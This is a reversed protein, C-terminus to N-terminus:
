DLSGQEMRSPRSINLNDCNRGISYLIDYGNNIDYLVDTVLTAVDRSDNTNIIEFIIEEIVDEM